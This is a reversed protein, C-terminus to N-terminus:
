WETKELGMIDAGTGGFRRDPLAPPFESLWEPSSM